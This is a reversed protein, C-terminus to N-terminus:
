DRGQFGRVAQVITVAVWVLGVVDVLVSHGFFFLGSLVLAVGGLGLFGVQTVLQRTVSRRAWSGKRTVGVGIAPGIPGAVFSSLSCLGVGKTPRNERTDPLPARFAEPVSPKFSPLNRFSQDLEARTRALLAMEVRRERDSDDIVGQAYADNIHDLVRDRQENTVRLSSTDKQWPTSM